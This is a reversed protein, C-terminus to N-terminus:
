IPDQLHVCSSRSSRALDHSIIGPHWGGDSQRLLRLELCRALLLRHQEDPSPPEDRTVVADAEDDTADEPEPEHFFGETPEEPPDEQM